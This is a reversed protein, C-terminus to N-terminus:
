SGYITIRSFDQDYFEITGKQLSNRINSEIQLPTKVKVNIQNILIDDLSSLMILGDNAGDDFFYSELTLVKEFEGKQDRIQGTSAEKYSDREIEPQFDTINLDLFVNNYGSIDSNFGFIDSSNRYQLYVYNEVDEIAILKFCNSIYKIEDNTNNFIVLQYIGNDLADSITFDAYFRYESGSIVDQMLTGANAQSLNAGQYVDLQWDAFDADDILRDLNAYFRHEFGKLYAPYYEKNNRRYNNPIQYLRAM